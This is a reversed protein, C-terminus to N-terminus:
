IHTEGGAGSLPLPPPPSIEFIKRETIMEFIRGSFIMKNRSMKLVSIDIISLEAHRRVPKSFLFTSCLIIVLQKPYIAM